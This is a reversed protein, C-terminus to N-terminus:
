QIIMLFILLRWYNKFLQFSLVNPIINANLKIQNYHKIFLDTLLCKKNGFFWYIRSLALSGLGIIINICLAAPPSHKSLLININLSIQYSNGGHPVCTLPLSFISYLTITKNKQKWFSYFVTDSYKTEIICKIILFLSLKVPEVYCILTKNTKIRLQSSSFVGWIM